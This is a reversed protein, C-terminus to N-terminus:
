PKDGEDDKDRKRKPVDEFTFPELKHGPVEADAFRIKGASSRLVKKFDAELATKLKLMRKQEDAILFPIKEMITCIQFNVRIGEDAMEIIDGKIGNAHQYILDCFTSRDIPIGHIKPSIKTTFFAVFKELLKAYKERVATVDAVCKINKELSKQTNIAREYNYQHYTCTILNQVNQYVVHIIALLDNKLRPREKKDGGSTRLSALLSDIAKVANYSATNFQLLREGLTSVFQRQEKGKGDAKPLELSVPEPLKKEDVEMPVDKPGPVEGEEPFPLKRELEM